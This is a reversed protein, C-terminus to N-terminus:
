FTGLNSLNPIHPEYIFQNASIARGVVVVWQCPAVTPPSLTGVIASYDQTLIGGAGAYILGGVTFNAGDYEYVNGYYTGVLISEGGNASSLSVGTVLPYIPDGNGDTQVTTPDIASVNGDLGVAIATLSNITGDATFTSIFNTGNSPTVGGGNATPVIADTFTAVIYSGVIITQDTSLNHTAVVTLVDGENLYPTLSILLSTPATQNSDTSSTALSTTGNLLVTGTRTGAYGTGWNLLVAVAYNGSTQITFTNPSTVNGTLDYDTQDFSVQLGTLGPPVIDIASAIEVKFGINQFTQIIAQSQQISNQIATSVTSAMGLTAAYSLNTRLMALQTPIPLQQIDPRNLYTAPDFTLGSWGTQSGPQSTTTYAVVPVEPITLLDGGPVWSRNRTTADLQISNYIILDGLPDIASDLAASYTSVFQILYPDQLLLAQLNANFTRWFQTFRDVETAVAFQDFVYKFQPRNTTYSPTNQINVSAITIVEQLVNGIASPFTCDVPYEATTGGLTITTTTSTDIITARYDLDTGTFGSVYNGSAYADWTTNRTYGLLSAEIYSLMWLLNGQVFPSSGMLTVLLPITTPTNNITTSPLVCNWPIPTNALYNLSPTIYNTYVTQFNSLWTGGRGVHNLKLYFLWEATINPDFNSAVIEELNISEVLAKQLDVSNTIYRTQPVVSVINNQYTASPMQYNSIITSPNPVSGLMSSNVNFPTAENYTEETPSLYTPTTTYGQMLSVYTPDTLDQGAPSISGSLPPVILTTGLNLGSYTTINAPPTQSTPGTTAGTNNNPPSPHIFICNSFEFQSFLSPINNLNSLKGLSEMSKLLIEFSTLPAFLVGNWHWITDKIQAGLLYPLSALSPLHWMCIQQLINAISNINESVLELMSSEIGKLIAVNQNVALILNTIENQFKNIDQIIKGSEAVYKIARLPNSLQGNVALSNLHVHTAISRMLEKQKQALSFQADAINREVFRGQELAQHYIHEIEPDGLPNLRTAVGKCKIPWLEAAQLGPPLTTSSSM